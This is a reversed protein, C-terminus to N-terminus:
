RWCDREMEELVEWRASSGEVGRLVLRLSRRVRMELSTAARWRPGGAWADEDWGGVVDAPKRSVGGEVSARPRMPWFVAGDRSPILACPMALGSLM